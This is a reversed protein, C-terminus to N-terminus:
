AGAGLDGRRRLLGPGRRPPPASVDWSKAVTAPSGQFVGEGDATGARRGPERLRLGVDPWSSSDVPEPEDVDVAEATFCRRCLKPGPPVADPSGIPGSRPTKM